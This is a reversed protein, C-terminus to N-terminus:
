VAVSVQVSVRLGVTTPEGNVREHGVVQGCAWAGAVTTVALEGDPVFMTADFWIPEAAVTAVGDIVNILVTAPEAGPETVHEIAPGALPQVTNGTPGIETTLGVGVGLGATNM